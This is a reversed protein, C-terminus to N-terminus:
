DIAEIRELKKLYSSIVRDSGSINSINILAERAKVYEKSIFYDIAKEFTDKNKLKETKLEEPDGTFVEYLTILNKKGKVKIVGLHRIDIDDSEVAGNIEQKVEDSIIISAGISKTASELRSALNVADSIVTGEMRESEGITGLMLSGFHIGIGIEISEYNQSLRHQNYQVLEKQMDIAAHVADQASNPFLAMLADGIYKDIFGGHKRIIPGMRSLYSNIFNFNEEPSMSESLTTFSRIDSFLVTMKKQVQDGLKVETISNKDLFNIFEHPVFRKFAQNLEAQVKNKEELQGAYQNLSIKQQEVEGYLAIFKNLLTYAMNVIITTFGWEFLYMFSYVRQLILIDSISCIFFVIISVVAPLLYRSGSRYKQILLYQSYGMIIFVMLFWIDLIIGTQAENYVIDMWEVVKPEAGEVSITLPSELFILVASQTANLVSTIYFFKNLPKELLVYIFYLFAIAFLALTAFNLKMPWLSAEITPANYQFSTFLCALAMFIATIGFSLNVRDNRRNHFLWLHYIGVYLSLAAFIVPAIAYWKM